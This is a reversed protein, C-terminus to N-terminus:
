KIEYTYPFGALIRHLDARKDEPISDRWGFCFIGTHSYYIVNKYDLDQDILWTFAKREKEADIVGQALSEKKQEQEKQLRIKRAVQQRAKMEELMDAPIVVNSRDFGWKDRVNVLFLLPLNDIELYESGLCQNCWEIKQDVYQAGCYGCVKTRAQLERIEEIGKFIYYGSQMKKCDINSLKECYEFIRYGNHGDKGKTNYQNSFLHKEEIEYIGAPVCKYQIALSNFEQLGNARTHKRAERTEEEGDFHRIEVQIAKKTKTTM